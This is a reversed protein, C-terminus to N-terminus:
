IRFAGDLIIQIRYMQLQLQQLHEKWEIDGYLNFFTLFSWVIVFGFVIGKFSRRIKRKFEVRNIKDRLLNIDM